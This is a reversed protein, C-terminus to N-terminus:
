KRWLCKKSNKLILLKTKFLRSPRLKVKKLSWPFVLQNSNQNRKLHFVCKRWHLIKGVLWSVNKKNEKMLWDELPKFYERFAGTDMKPEGTMVEMAEKWPKSSGPVLMTKLKDGAEKSGFFNCRHLGM